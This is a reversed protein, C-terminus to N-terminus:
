FLSILNIHITLMIVEMPFVQCISESEEVKTLDKAINDFDAQFVFM